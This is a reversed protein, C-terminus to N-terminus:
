KLHEQLSDAMLNSIRKAFALPDELPLQATLLAEDYLMETCEALKPDKADKAHVQRLAAILSHDPNLELIRKTPPTDPNMAKMIKEMHVGMGWGDSVLCCASETLRKSLRVEKVKDGLIEKMAAVLDKNDAEAQKRAEEKAAKEEESDIDVDGKGINRLTKEKYSTLDQSLWDDIPDTFFLVEYGKAKFAELQPANAAATRNEATIYYIEKQHEPMRSVYEALTTRKGAELHSSEYMLLEKIRDGNEFDTHLGEKLMTGFGTWFEQYREPNKEKMDALTDLVKKVLNKQIIRIARAEQLIERSVNLPLDSSDVVGRLFRLYGPTLEECKDTIFVRRVYLQIGRDRQEPMFMEFLPKRPIYILARFETQGEVQWHITELPEQYDHSVHRYFEKYEEETVENKPRQWIAKRSNLTEETITKKPEKGEIPKGQDDREVEEREIDMNIPHEVFDSFRKVTKRIKWEDLYEENEPTLYVIVDTGRKERTTPTITYFGDGQSEWAVGQDASGARRTVVKVRHAVMFASYFGVGFQGILEPSLSDKNEQLQELFRKTGSSAITGINQELEEANMGIGNDSVTLTKAEKDVTIKIKWEPDDELISEDKLSEFRARDIADSANSILERLFIEKNSYLSHIVLDLLKKVETKFPRQESM